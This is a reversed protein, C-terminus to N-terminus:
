LPGAMVSGRVGRDISREIWIYRLSGSRRAFKITVSKIYEDYQKSNLAISSLLM